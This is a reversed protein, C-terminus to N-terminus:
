AAKQRRSAAMLGMLALGALFLSDPEPVTRPTSTLSFAMDVALRTLPTNPDANTDFYQYSGGDGGTGTAWGWQPPFAMSPQISLWYTTDAQADFATTLDVEYAYLPGLGNSGSAVQGANGLITASYLLTGPAGSANGWFQILFSTIPAPAASNSGSFFGGYWHVDTISTASGLSFNDYVKAFSGFGGATDNQSAVVSGLPALAVPQSYVTAAVSPLASVVLLLPAFVGTILKRM